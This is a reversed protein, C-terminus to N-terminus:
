GSRSLHSHYDLAPMRHCNHSQLRDMGNHERAFQQRDQPEDNRTENAPPVPGDPNGRGGDGQLGRYEQGIITDTWDCGQGFAQACSM